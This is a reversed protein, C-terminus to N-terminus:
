RSRPRRLRPQVRRLRRVKPARVERVVPDVAVVPVGVVSLFVVVAPVEAAAPVEVAAPDEAGRVRVILHAAGLVRAAIAQLGVVARRGIEAARVGAAAPDAVARVIEARRVTVAGARNAADADIAAIVGNKKPRANYCGVLAPRHFTAARHSTRAVRKAVAGQAGQGAGAAAVALDAEAAASVVAAPVGVVRAIGEAEAV